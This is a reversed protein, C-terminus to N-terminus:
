ATVDKRPEHLDILAKRKTICYFGGSLHCADFEGL